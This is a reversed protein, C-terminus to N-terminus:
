LTNGQMFSFQLHFYIKIIGGGCSIISKEKTQLSKALATERERFYAEGHKAFVELRKICIQDM